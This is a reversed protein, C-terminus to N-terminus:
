RPVDQRGNMNFPEGDVYQRGSCNEKHDSLTDRRSFKSGCDCFYAIGMHIEEVHECLSEINFEQGCHNWRCEARTKEQGRIGHTEHLHASLNIGRILYNCHLGHPYGWMCQFMEEPSHAVPGLAMDSLRNSLYKYFHNSM